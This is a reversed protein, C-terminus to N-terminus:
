GLWQKARVRISFEDDYIYQKLQFATYLRGYVRVAQEIDKIIKTEGDMDVFVDWPPLAVSFKCQIAQEIMKMGDKDRDPVIVIKKNCKRLWDVQQDKITFHCTAVGDILGANLPGETVYIIDSDGNLIDFNYLSNPPYQNIYKTNSKNWTIRATYGILQNHMYFPIIFRDNMNLDKSPSWFLDFANLIHPNRQHVKSLVKLFDTPPKPKQAWSSFPEADKPLERKVIAASVYTSSIDDEHYKKLEEIMLTLSIKQENSAGYYSMLDMLKTSVSFGPKYYVKFGCNFCHVSFEGSGTFFMGGLHRADQRPQGNHICAPCNHPIWKNLYLPINAINSVLLQIDM